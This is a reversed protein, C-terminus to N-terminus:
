RTPQARHEVPRAASPDTRPVVSPKHVRGRRGDRRVRVLGAGTVIVLDPRPDRIKSKAARKMEVDRSHNSPHLKSRTPPRYQPVPLASPFPAQQVPPNGPLKVWVELRSRAHGAHMNKEGKLLPGFFFFRGSIILVADEIKPSKQKLVKTGCM